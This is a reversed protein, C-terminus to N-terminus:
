RARAVADAPVSAANGDPDTSTAAGRPLGPAPAQRPHPGLARERGRRVAPGCRRGPSLDPGFVFETIVELMAARYKQSVAIDHAMSVCWNGGRRDEAPGDRFSSAPTSAMSISTGERRSRARAKNYMTQFDPSSSWVRWSSRARRTTQTTSRSFVVSNSNLIFGPQDVNMTARTYLCDINPKYGNNDFYGIAWDGICRFDAQSKLVMAAAVDWTRGPIGQGDLRGDQAAPRVFQGHGPEAPRRSRASSRRAFLEPDMGYVVMEFLTGDTWDQSGTRDAPYGGSRAERRGRQVRLRALESNSEADQPPVLM